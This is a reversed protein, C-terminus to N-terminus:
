IQCILTLMQLSTAVCKTNKAGPCLTYNLDFMLINIVALHTQIKTANASNLSTCFQSSPRELYTFKINVTGHM